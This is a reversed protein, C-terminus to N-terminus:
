QIFEISIGAAMAARRAIALMGASFDMGIVEYGRRAIEVSHRGPGCGLDLIHSRSPLNFVELYFDVEEESPQAYDRSMYETADSDFYQEWTNQTMLNRWTNFHSQM